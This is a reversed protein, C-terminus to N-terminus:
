GGLQKGEMAVAIQKRASQRAKAFCEQRENSRLRTGTREQGVRCVKRAAAEIRRQLTAQGEPSALNLDSYKVTTSQAPHSGAQNSGAIAPTAILAAGIAAATTLSKLMNDEM